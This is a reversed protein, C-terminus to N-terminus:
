WIRPYSLSGQMNKAVLRLPLWSKSTHRGVALRARERRDNKCKARSHTAAFGYRSSSLTEM